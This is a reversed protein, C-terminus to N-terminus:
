EINRTTLRFVVNEVHENAFLPVFDTVMYWRPKAMGDHVYQGGIKLNEIKVNEVKRGADYGAIQSPYVNESREQDLEVNRLTINKVGRGPATTWMANKMVRINFLQGKTIKEVRIDEVLVDQILNEDAANISICGQYWMQHECHDLIDINSVHINSFTEPRKSNGHTGIQIPHAIDPLLTCNRVKINRTDGYYDWRHGYIAITDDSNRLFCNEILVERCCFLDIGDGNGYSSFSRYRNIHIDKGEVVPLSFGFSRLSTVGEVIINKSREILVAGGDLERPRQSASAVYADGLRSIFGPGRISSNEVNSFVVQATLFAGSALYITTDSPVVLQGDVVKDYACGNNVGPRFYWLGMSDCNPEDPDIENVLLHLAQWKDGNIELMVDVARDLTFGICGDDIKTYIGFSAPRIVAADVKSCDYRIKFELSQGPSISLSAVAINHTNFENRTINVSAVTTTVATIAHWDTEHGVGAVRTRIQFNEDVKFGAPLRDRDIHNLSTM